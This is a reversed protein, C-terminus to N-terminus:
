GQLCYFTKCFFTTKLLCRKILCINFFINQKMLILVSQVSPKTSINTSEALMTVMYYKVVLVINSNICMYKTEKLLM